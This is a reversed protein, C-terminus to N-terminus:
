QYFFVFMLVSVVTGFVSAGVLCFLSLNNKNQERMVFLWGFISFIILPINLSLPVLAMLSRISSSLSLLSYLGLVVNTVGLVFLAGLTILKVRQSFVVKSDPSKRQSPPATWQDM